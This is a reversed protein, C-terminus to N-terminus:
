LNLGLRIDISSMERSLLTSYLNSYVSYQVGLGFVSTNLFNMQFTFRNSLNGTKEVITKDNKDRMSANGVGFAYEFGIGFNKTINVNYGLGIFVNRVCYNTDFPQENSRFLSSNLSLNSLNTKSIAHRVGFEHARFGRNTRSSLQWNTAAFIITSPNSSVTRNETVQLKEQPVVSKKQMTIALTENLLETDRPLIYQVMKSAIIENRQVISVLGIPGLYDIDNAHLAIKYHTLGKKAIVRNSDIPLMASFEQHFLINGNTDLVYYKNQLKVRAYGWQNFSDAQDFKWFFLRTGEKNQYGYLGLHTNLVPFLDINQANAVVFFLSLISSFYINKM